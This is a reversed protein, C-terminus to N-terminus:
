LFVVVIFHNSEGSRSLLGPSGDSPHLDFRLKDAPTVAVDQDSINVEEILFLLLLGSYTETHVMQEVWSMRFAM